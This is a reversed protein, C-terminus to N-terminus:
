LNNTVYHLMYQEKEEQTAERHRWDGRQGAVLASLEENSPYVVTGGGLHLCFSDTLAPEPPWYVGKVDNFIMTYTSSARVEQARTPSIGVFDYLYTEVRDELCAVVLKKEVDKSRSM